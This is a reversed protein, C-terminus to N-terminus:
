RRLSESLNNIHNEDLNTTPEDLVFMGFGKSFCEALAMRIIISALMRQGASCRGRMDLVKGNKKMVVRYNYSRNNQTSEQESRIEISEIDDGNYAKDWLEFIKANIEQMKRTHYNMLTNELENILRDIETIAEQDGHKIAWQEKFRGEINKYQTKLDDKDFNISVKLQEMNGTISSFESTMRNQEDQLYALKEKYSTLGQNELEQRLERTQEQLKGIEVKLYRYEINDQIDRETQRTQGIKM